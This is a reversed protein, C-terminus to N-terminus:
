LGARRMAELFEKKTGILRDTLNPGCGINELLSRAEDWDVIGKRFLAVVKTAEECSKEHM